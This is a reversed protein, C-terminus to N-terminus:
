FFLFYRRLLVFANQIDSWSGNTYTVTFAFSGAMWMNTLLIAVVQAVRGSPIQIKREKCWRSWYVYFCVGVGQYLGWFIWNLAGGHWLGIALFTLLVAVYTNRTYAISPMYVYSRCWSSFTMHWRQWLITINTALIPWNFNEMIRFGLLRSSGIAIDSYASFDLYVILYTIVLFGYVKYQEITDIRWLLDDATKSNLLGLLLVGSIFYKKILGYIIRTFGEVLDRQLSDSERNSQFHDYREIPGATFIPFLFVYTLFQDFRHPAFGDRGLEIIYHILKFTFYSVGLPILIETEIPLGSIYQFLVPLYKFYALYCLVLVVLFVQVFPWYSYKRTVVPLYYFLCSLFFLDGIFRYRWNMLTNLEWVGQVPYLTLVTVIIFSISYISLFCFRWRWPM